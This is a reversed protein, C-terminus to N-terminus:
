NNIEYLSPTKNYSISYLKVVIREKKISTLCVITTLILVGNRKERQFFVWFCSM